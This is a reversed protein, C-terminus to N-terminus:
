AGFVTIHKSAIIEEQRFLKQEWTIGERKDFILLWGEQCGLTDMYGSLQALGKSLITELSDKERRVKLEIPYKCNKYLICIDLNGRGTAMERIIQGGGNVVRQLFAFTVLHAAAETYDLKEIWVESNERWFSQFIELLHSIDIQGDHFFIHPNSPIDSATMAMQPWESLKRAIVEAYIPNSPILRGSEQRVLGLDLCYLYDDDAPNPAIEGLVMPEVIHRVRPEKLREMLSDIHTPRTRIIIQIAEKVLTETIVKRYDKELIEEIVERAIANVLWPQGGTQHYVEDIAEPEFFQGEAKTHQGYM